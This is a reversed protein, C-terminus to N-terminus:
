DTLGADVVCVNEIMGSLLKRISVSDSLNRITPRNKKMPLMLICASRLTAQNAILIKGKLLNLHSSLLRWKVRLKRTPEYSM